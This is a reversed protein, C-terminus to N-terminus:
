EGKFIKNYAEQWDTIENWNSVDLIRQAKSHLIKRKTLENFFMDRKVSPNTDVSSMLDELSGAGEEDVRKGYVDDGIRCLRNISVKFANSNAAKVNKDIDVVNEPTHPLSGTGQCIKCGPLPYGSTKKCNCAKFQIRAAGTGFYRRIPPMVGFPMLYEDLICLHGNVIIWELGIFQVQGDQWSWGPFYEDLKTRMYAEELYDLGDPRKKIILNGSGDFKPTPENSIDMYKKHMDKKLQKIKSLSDKSYTAVIATSEPM